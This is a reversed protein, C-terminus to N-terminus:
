IVQQRFYLISKALIVFSQDQNNIYKPTTDFTFSISTFMYIGLVEFSNSSVTWGMEDPLNIKNQKKILVLNSDIKRAKLNKRLVM